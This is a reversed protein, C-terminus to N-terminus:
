VDWCQILGAGQHLLHLLSVAFSSLQQHESIRRPFFFFFFLGVLGQCWLLTDVM